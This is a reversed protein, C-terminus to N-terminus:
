AGEDLKFSIVVAEGGRGVQLKVYLALGAYRCRYVDQNMGPFKRSPMTKYFDQDTLALVCEKIESEDLSAKAADAGAQRTIWYRGAGVGKKVDGLPYHPRLFRNRPFPLVM